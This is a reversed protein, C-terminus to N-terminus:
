SLRVSAFPQFTEVTEHQMLRDELKELEKTDVNREKVIEWQITTKWHLVSNNQIRM